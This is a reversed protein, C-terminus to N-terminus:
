CRFKKVTETSDGAERKPRAYIKKFVAWIEKEIKRGNLGFKEAISGLNEGIKKAKQRTHAPM